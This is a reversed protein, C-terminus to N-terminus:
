EEIDDEGTFIIPVAGTIDVKDTFLRYRKGLLEGAKNSDSLKAPIQVIQPVEEKKTQKRMTGHEDPVYTSTEKNLTVVVNETKERRMVSTLYEMVEQANAVRESRLKELLEETYASVNTNRLLRSGNVAATEEKKCSSYAAKYARTANLDIVYEESFKKQKETLAM